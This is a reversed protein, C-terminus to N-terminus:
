LISASRLLPCCAQALTFILVLIRRKLFISILSAACLYLSVYFFKLIKNCVNFIQFRHSGLIKGALRSLFPVSKVPNQTDAVPPSSEDSLFNIFQHSVDYQTGCETCERNGGNISKLTGHDKPCVFEPLRHNESTDSHPKILRYKVQDCFLFSTISSNELSSFYHAAFVLKTKLFGQLSILYKYIAGDFWVDSLIFGVSSSIERMERVSPAEDKYSPGHVTIGLLSALRYYVQSAYFNTPGLSEENETTIVAVGEPKLVRFIEQMMKEPNVVHEIVERSIVRDFCQDPFPLREAPALAFHSPSASDIARIIMEESIDTSYLISNPFLHKINKEDLGFGCGVILISMGDKIQAMELIYATFRRYFYNYYADAWPGRNWPFSEIDDLPFKIEFRKPLTKYISDFSLKHDFYSM